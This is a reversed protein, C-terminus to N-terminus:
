PQSPSAEIVKSPHVPAGERDALEAAKDAGLISASQKISRQENAPPNPLARIAVRPFIGAEEGEIYPYIQCNFSRVVANVAAACEQERARMEKVNDKERRKFAAFPKM